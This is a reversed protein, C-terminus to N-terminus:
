NYIMYIYSQSGTVFRHGFGGALRSSATQQLPVISQRKAADVFLTMKDVTKNRRALINFGYTNMICKGIYSKTTKQMIFISYIYIPALSRPRPCFSEIQPQRLNRCSSLEKVVFLTQRMLARNQGRCRSRSGNHNFKHHNAM